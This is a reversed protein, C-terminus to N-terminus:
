HPHFQLSSLSEVVCGSELKQRQQEVWYRAEALGDATWVHPLGAATAIRAVMGWRV